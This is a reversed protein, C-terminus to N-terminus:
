CLDQCSSNSEDLLGPASHPLNLVSSSMSPYTTTAVFAFLFQRFKRRDLNKRRAMFKSEDLNEGSAM